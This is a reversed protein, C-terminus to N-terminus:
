HNCVDEISEKIIEMRELLTFNSFEEQDCFMGLSKLKRLAFSNEGLNYCHQHITSVMSFYCDMQIEVGRDDRAKFHQFLATQIREFTLEIKQREQLLAEIKGKNKEKNVLLRALPVEDSQVPNSFLINGSKEGDGSVARDGQFM